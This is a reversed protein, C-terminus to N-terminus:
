NRTPWSQIAFALGCHAASNKWLCPRILWTGSLHRAILSMKSLLFPMVRTVSLHLAHLSSENLLFLKVRMASLHLPPVGLGSLQVPNLSTESRFNSKLSTGSLHSCYSWGQLSVELCGQLDRRGVQYTGHWRQSIKVASM